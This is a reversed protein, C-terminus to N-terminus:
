EGLPRTAAETAWTELLKRQAATLPRSTFGPRHFDPQVRAPPKPIHRLVEEHKLLRAFAVGAFREQVWVITGPVRLRNRQFFLTSGEAPLRDGEILAGMESLNRLKVAIATGEVELSASLLVPKRRSRRNCNMSQSNM